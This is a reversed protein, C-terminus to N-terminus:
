RHQLPEDAAHEVGANAAKVDLREVLHSGTEDEPDDEVEGKDCPLVFADSADGIAHDERHREVRPIDKIGLEVLHTTDERSAPVASVSRAKCDFM